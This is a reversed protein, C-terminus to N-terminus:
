YYGFVVTRFSFLTGPRVDKAWTPRGDPVYEERDFHDLLEQGRRLYETADIPYEFQDEPMM